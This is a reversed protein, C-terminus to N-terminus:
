LGGSEKLQELDPDVVLEIVDVNQFIKLIKKKMLLSCLKIFIITTSQNKANNKSAYTSVSSYKLKKQM